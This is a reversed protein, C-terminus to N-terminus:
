EIIFGGNPPLLDTWLYDLDHSLNQYDEHEVFTMPYNSSDNVRDTSGMFAIHHNRSTNSIDTSLLGHLLLYLLGILTVPGFVNFVLCSLLNPKSTPIHPNTMAVTSTM